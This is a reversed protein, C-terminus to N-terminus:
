MSAILLISHQSLMLQSAPASAPLLISQGVALTELYDGCRVQVQGHPVTLIRFQGDGGCATHTIGQVRDFRFKDCEVLRTYGAENLPMPTQWDRPGIDYDITELSQEIHLPRSNGHADVRDWDYLRFTTNSSQQIEAVVLGAGLAHVTGAPIFVCDGAKPTLQHLCEATAGRAISARLDDPGVGPKLGAYLVSNPQADIIYWAETKGLDPPQMKLAYTDNPHVQVSLDRQCDLYKLLLPFRGSVSPADGILWKPNSRMIGGLTKGKLPGNIIRSEHEAHDVVEWSEAWIGDAPISKGLRSGLKRGGWLYDRFFPELRLPYASVDM